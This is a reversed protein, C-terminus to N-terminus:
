GRWSTPSANNSLSSANWYPADAMPKAASAAPTDKAFAPASVGAVIMLGASAALLVAKFRHAM